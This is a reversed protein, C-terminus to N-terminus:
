NLSSARRWVCHSPVRSRLCANPEVQRSVSSLAGMLSLWDATRTNCHARIMAFRHTARSRWTRRDTRATYALNSASRAPPASAVASATRAPACPDLPAQALVRVGAHVDLRCRSRRFREAPRRAAGVTCRLPTRAPQPYAYSRERPARTREITPRWAFHATPLRGLTLCAPSPM